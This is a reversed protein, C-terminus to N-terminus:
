LYDPKGKKEYEQASGDYISTKQAGAQRFALESICATIGAGCSIVIHKSLDINDEEIVKNIEEMSLFENKDANLLKYCYSNKFGHPHAKEYHTPVRADIFEYDTSGEEIFLNTLINTYYKRLSVRSPM